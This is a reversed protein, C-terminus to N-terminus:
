YIGIPLLSYKLKENSLTKLSESKLLSPEIVGRQLPSTAERV